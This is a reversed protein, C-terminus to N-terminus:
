SRPGFIAEGVRLMTSGAYIAQELDASMGMSLTDWDAHSNAGLQAGVQHYLEQMRQFSPAPDQGWAPITMLGRLRLNPMSSVAAALEAVREPHCGSKNPDSDINVQLLVNLRPLQRPRASNLRQAIKVRDLSQVWAFNRAVEGTKNAQLSGIFHWQLGAAALATIKAMAESLYNEGMAEFGQAQAALIAAPSQRKSVPLLSIQEASRGCRACAAAIRQRVRAIRQHPDSKNTQRTCSPAGTTQRTCSPAGMQRTCSPAGLHLETSVASNSDSPLLM